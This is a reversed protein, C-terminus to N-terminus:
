VTGARPKARERVAARAAADAALLADLDEAPYADAALAAEILRPIATFTVRRELFLAVAAENAANFAAPAAGGRRLAERALALAPFRETDPPEFDLAGLTAWDVRPHPASWRAPYTLAYQIPVRMDPVGLQAKTSGDRFAVLSHVISQPHVLVEIQEPALDFLWRAEIVELGKNALTASDVTVKAGMRWNPHALAEEPTIADFTAAPRRLFPGGSATLILKEVAAPDEGVLCQFVASHESDVPLLVAGHRAAKEKVLAGAMVLTEKNALAVTKGAEVAALTPALGAAGVVAAVVVDAGDLAAVECLGEQGCLVRVGTGALAEVLPAYAAPEAIAVAEPRFRRALAALAEWDSGAALAKVALRDPFLAAIELAQTGISGTAGLVVLRRPGDAPPAPPHYLPPLM